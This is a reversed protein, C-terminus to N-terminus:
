VMKKYDLGETILQILITIFTMNKLYVEDKSSAILGYRKTQNMLIDIKVILKPKKLIVPVICIIDKLTFAMQFNQLM